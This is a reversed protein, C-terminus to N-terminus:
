RGCCAHITAVLAESADSKSVYAAAGAKRMADGRESAAHMSLGIVIMEPFEAHIAQTAAIGDMRPMAVDMLIVDPRLSHAQEVASM